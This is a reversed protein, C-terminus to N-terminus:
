LAEWLTGEHFASPLALLLRGAYYFICWLVGVGTLLEALAVLPGGRPGRRAEHNTLSALCSACVVQDDHETVCERCFFNGCVPCRAVAERDAHNFCRHTLQRRSM